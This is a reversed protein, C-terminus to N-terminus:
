TIKAFLNLPYEFYLNAQNINTLIFSVRLDRKKYLQKCKTKTDLLIHTINMVFILFDTIQNNNKNKSYLFTRFHTFYVSHICNIKDLHKFYFLKCYNYFLFKLYM